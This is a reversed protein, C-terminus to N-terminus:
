YIWYSASWSSFVWYKPVLNYMRLCTVKNLCVFMAKRSSWLDSYQEVFDRAISDLQPEATLLRIRKAFVWELKEQQTPDL